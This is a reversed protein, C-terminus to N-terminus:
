ALFHQLIFYYVKLEVDNLYDSDQPLKVPHIPPHANDNLKGPRPAQYFESNEPLLGLLYKEAPHTQRFLDMDDADEGENKLTYALKNLLMKPSILPYYTTTETRPYSILGKTYLKEAISM